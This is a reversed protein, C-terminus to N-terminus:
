VIGILEKFLLFKSENKMEDEFVYDRMELEYHTTNVRNGMDKNEQLLLDGLYGYILGAENISMKESLSILTAKAVGLLTRIEDTKPKRFDIYEVQQKEM